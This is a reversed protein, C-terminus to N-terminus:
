VTTLITRTAECPDVVYQREYGSVLYAVRKWSSWYAVCCASLMTHLHAFHHLMTGSTFDLVCTVCKMYFVNGFVRLCFNQFFELMQSVLSKLAASM